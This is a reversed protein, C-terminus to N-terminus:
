EGAHHQTERRTADDSYEDGVMGQNVWRDARAGLRKAEATAAVWTAVECIPRGEGVHETHDVPQLKALDFTRLDAPEEVHHLTLRFAAGVMALTIWRITPAEGDDVRGLYQEVHKGRSLASQAQVSTIHRM